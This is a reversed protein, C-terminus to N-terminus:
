KTYDIVKIGLGRLANVANESGGKFLHWTAQISDPSNAVIEADKQGQLLVRQSATIYGNKAEHLGTETQRDIFRKGLSTNYFKHVIGDGVIEGLKQEGQKGIQNSTLSTVAKVFGTEARGIAKIAGVAPIGPILGTASLSLSASAEKIGQGSSLANNLRYLDIAIAALTIGLDVPSIAE